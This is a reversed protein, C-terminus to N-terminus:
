CVAWKGTLQSGTGSLYYYSSTWTKSAFASLTTCASWTSVPYGPTQTVVVGVKVRKSSACSNYVQYKARSVFLDSGSDRLIGTLCGANVASALPAADRPAAHAVPGALVTGAIGVIVAFAIGISTSSRRKGSAATIAPTATRKSM